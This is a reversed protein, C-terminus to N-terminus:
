INISEVSQQLSATADFSSDDFKGKKKSHISYNVDDGSSDEFSDDSVNNLEVVFTKKNLSNDKKSV